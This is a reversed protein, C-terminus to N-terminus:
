KGYVDEKKLYGSDILIKDINTKDVVQPTLLISPVDIKKNNVKQDAGAEEGKVIKLAATIAAKGLERTDKFVTMGQTGEVIRKAAALESDQGTIPVKGDLKQAALAQICGGATGD